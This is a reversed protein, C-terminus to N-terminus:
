HRENLKLILTRRGNKLTVARAEIRAVVFDTEAVAQGLRYAGHKSTSRGRGRIEIWACIVGGVQATGNLIFDSSGATHTSTAEPKALAIPRRAPHFLNGASINTFRQRSRRPTTGGERVVPLAPADKLPPATWRLRSWGVLASVGFMICVCILIFFGAKM